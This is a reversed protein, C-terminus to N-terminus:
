KSTLETSSKEYTSSVFNERYCKDAFPKQQIRAWFEDMVAKDEGESPMLAIPVSINDADEPQFFSPHACVVAKFLEL